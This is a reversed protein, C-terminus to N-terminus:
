RGFAGRAGKKKRGEVFLRPDVAPAMGRYFTVIAECTPGGCPCTPGGCSCAEVGFGVNSSSTANTANFGREAMHTVLAECTTRDPLAYRPTSFSPVTESTIQTVRALLRDPIARVIDADLGQMDTRILKIPLRPPLLALAQEITITDVVRTEMRGRPGCIDKPNSSNNNGLLSSCGAVRGINMTVPGGTLSVAVPLAVARPHYFGLPTALNSGGSIFIGHHGFREDGRAMLKAYKDAMPEFTLLFANPDSPLVQEDLTDLDSAGIEVLAHTTHHPVQLHGHELTALQTTIMVGTETLSFGAAAAAVFLAM